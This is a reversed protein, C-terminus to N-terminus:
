QIREIKEIKLLGRRKPGIGLRQALALLELLIEEKFDSVVTITFNVKAEKVVDYYETSGVRQILYGTPKDPANSFNQGVEIWDPEVFLGNALRSTYGYVPSTRKNTQGGYKSKLATRLAGALYGRSGGIPATLKGNGNTPFTYVLIIKSRELKATKALEEKETSAKDEHSFVVSKLEQTRQAYQGHLNIITAAVKLQYNSLGKEAKEFRKTIDTM